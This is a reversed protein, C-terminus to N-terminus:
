VLLVLATVVVAALVTALVINLWLTLDIGPLLPVQDNFEYDDDM